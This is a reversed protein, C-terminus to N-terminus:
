NLPIVKNTNARFKLAYNCDHNAWETYVDGCTEYVSGNGVSVNGVSVDGDASDCLCVTKYYNDASCVPGANAMKDAQGAM